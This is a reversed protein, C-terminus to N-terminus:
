TNSCIKPMTVEDDINPLWFSMSSCASAMMMYKPNFLVCQVASKHDGNLVCVKQGTEANWIHIRGDTSGSIVFQSDPSFSAELPLNKSNLHGTFSQLTAGNYSDILKIMSENTSILISKGDPSFKLGTWEIEQSDAQLKFSSFPGKDFSRALWFM